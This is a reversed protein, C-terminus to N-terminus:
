FPVDADPAPRDSEPLFWQVTSAATGDRKTAAGPKVRADSIPKAWDRKRADDLKAKIKTLATLYDAHEQSGVQDQGPARDLHLEACAISAALDATEIGDAWGGYAGAEALARRVQLALTSGNTGDDTKQCIGRLQCFEALSIRRPVPVEGPEIRYYVSFHDEGDRLKELTVQIAEPRKETRAKKDAEVEIIFDVNGAFGSHGRIGKTKDKGSHAVFLVIGDFSRRFFGAPGNDTLYSSVLASNEDEGAIATALTDIVMIDPQFGTLQQMHTFYRRTAEMDRFPPVADAIRLNDDLHDPPLKRDALHAPVRQKGVGFAGEGAAYYVHADEDIMVDMLMALVINTKHSGYEGVLIGVAGDPSRPLMKDKDWFEMDPMAAYQSPSRISFWPTEAETVAQDLDDITDATM